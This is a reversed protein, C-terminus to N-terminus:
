PTHNVGLVRWHGAHYDLRTVSLNDIKFSMASAASMEVARQIQTLIVGFHAVAIINAKPQTTNMQDVYAGVRAATDNWSEGNPPAHDGPNMWYDRSLKPHTTSVEAFNKEEWAGFNMEKIAESHPLRTRTGQVADATATARILPSSVVLADAPLSKELRGLAATDSLDAPLDTWGVFSKAHTPGHRVWWWCTM